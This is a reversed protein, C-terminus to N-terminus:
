VCFDGKKDLVDKDFCYFGLFGKDPVVQFKYYQDVLLKIVDAESYELHTAIEKIRHKTIEDLRFNSPIKSKKMVIV